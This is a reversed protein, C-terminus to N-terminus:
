DSLAHRERIRRIEEVIPDKWVEKGGMLERPTCIVPSDYGAARCIAVMVKRHEAHGVPAGQSTLLFDIGHVVAVAFHAMGEAV